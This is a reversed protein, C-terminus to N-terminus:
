PARVPIWGRIGGIRAVAGKKELKQLMNSVEISAMGLGIAMDKVLPSFGYVEVHRYLWVFVRWERQTLDIPEPEPLPAVVRLHRAPPAVRAVYKAAEVDGDAYEGRQVVHVLAAIGADVSSHPPVRLLAQVLDGKPDPAGARYDHYEGCLVGLAIRALAIQTQQAAAGARAALEVLDGVAAYLRGSASGLKREIAASTMPVM